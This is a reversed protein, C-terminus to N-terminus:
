ESDFESIGYYKDGIVVGVEGQNTERGLRHLFARLRSRATDTMAAQDAYCTVVTPEEYRLEGQRQDDRWVGRARPYATAGRFLTGLTELANTVWYDHDIDRGDRDQSPVFLVIPLSGTPLTAGLWHEIKPGSKRRRALMLNRDKSILLL